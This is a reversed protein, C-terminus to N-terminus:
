KVGSVGKELAAREVARWEDGLGTVAAGSQPVLISIPPDDFARGPM